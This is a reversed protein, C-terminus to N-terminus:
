TFLLRDVVMLRPFVQIQLSGSTEDTQFDIVFCTTASESTVSM